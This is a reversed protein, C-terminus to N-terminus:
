ATLKALDDVGALADLPVERQADFRQVAEDYIYMVRRLVGHERM